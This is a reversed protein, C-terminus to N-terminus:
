DAAGGRRKLTVAGCGAPQAPAAAALLDDINKESRITFGADQIMRLTKVAPAGEANLYGSLFLSNAPYLAMVELDRLHLERGAAVRIDAQPNMFRFLCLVRLCYEPTLPSASKLPVGDIPIFFNVPISDAARERLTQAVEVIDEPGEGMGVILGSCIQLGNSQAVELTRVRDEYSHTSCIQPYFRQSTNLNHNVRDLGAEKLVRASPEDLIGASVCVQIPFRQKITRVLGALHEIRKFSPRRGAFVMCYRFAGQEFAQRAEDLIEADSKLPYDEIPSDADRSQACYKCDEPCAGNQVNNLIHILVDQGYFRRRIQYAADLLPLLEIQPDTLIRVAQQRSLATGSLSQEIIQQYFAHDPM